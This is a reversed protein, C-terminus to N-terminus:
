HADVPAAAGRRPKRILFLIPLVAFCICGAVFFVDLMALYRAQRLTQGWLLGWGHQLADVGSYGKAMLARGTGAVFNLHAASTPTIHSVLQVQHFQTRRSLLTSLLAIGVSGGINRSLNMLGAAQNSLERSLTSYAMVNIPIFLAALGMCQVIRATAANWYGIGLNWGSMIILGSGTLILGYAVLARTDVRRVLLGVIPMSLLIVIGGPSMVLGSTTADFGLMTQLFIPIMFTSGYLVFGLAFLMFNSSAFARDKLLRLNVVPHEHHLEWFVMAVLGVVAVIAFGVIFPSSFWDNRQGEDLVIELAALGLVVLGFGVFDIQKSDKFRLRKLYPPDVLIASSLVMSLIGV